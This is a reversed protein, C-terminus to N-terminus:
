RAGANDADQNDDKSVFVTNRGNEKAISLAKDCRDLVNLWVEQGIDCSTVGFSATIDIKQNDEIRYDLDEIKERLKEAVGKAKDSHTSPLIIIFEEGSLRAISDYDRTNKILVEAVLVLIKDGVGYGYRDNLRKFYDIDLLVVSLPSQHRLSRSQETTFIEELAHRNFVGTLPDHTAQEILKNHIKHSVLWVLGFSTVIVIYQYVIISLSHLLGANLFNLLPKETITVLARLSFFIGFILFSVAMMLNAKHHKSQQAILISLMVFLCQISLILSIMVIRINTDNEIYTFVLASIFIMLVLVFSLQKIPKINDEYFATLSLHILAMSFVILVNPVIISLFDPILNRFIILVFGICSVIFAYGLTKIGKFQPYKNSYLILCIGFSLSLLINNISLTRLDLFEQV